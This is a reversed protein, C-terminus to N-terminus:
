IREGEVVYTNNTLEAKTIKLGLSTLINRVDLISYICKKVHKNHDGYIKKNFEELSISRLFYMQAVAIADLGCLIIAGQLRLKRKWYSILEKAEGFTFYDIVNEVIIQRAEADGCVHDLNNLDTAIKGDSGSSFPDINQFGNLVNSSDWLLNLKM